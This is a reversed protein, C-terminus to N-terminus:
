QNNQSERTKTDNLLFDRMYQQRYQTPTQGIHKKFVRLFYKEDNFYARDAIVKLPLNSQLLLGCAIELKKHVILNSATMGTEAKVLRSIYRYNMQFHDALSKVTTQENLHQNLWNIIELARPNLRTLNHLGAIFDIFDNTIKLMLSTIVYSPLADSYYNGKIVLLANLCDTNIASFNRLQYQEPIIVNNVLQSLKKRNTLDAKIQKIDVLSRDDKPLFQFWYFDAQNSQSVVQLEQHPGIVVCTGKKMRRIRQDVVLQCQGHSCIILEYAKVPENNVYNQSERVIKEGSAYHHFPRDSNFLFVRHNSKDVVM